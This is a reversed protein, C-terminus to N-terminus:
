KIHVECIQTKWHEEYIQQIREYNKHQIKLNELEQYQEDMSSSMEKMIELDGKM